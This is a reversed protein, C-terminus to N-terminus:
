SVTPAIGLEEMKFNKNNGRNGLDSIYLKWLCVLRLVLYFYQSRTVIFITYSYQFSNTNEM